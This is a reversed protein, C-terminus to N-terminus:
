EEHTFIDGRVSACHLCADCYDLQWNKEGWVHMDPANANAVLMAFSLVGNVGLM